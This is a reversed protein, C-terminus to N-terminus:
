RKPITKRFANVALLLLPLVLGYTLVYLPWIEKDWTNSQVINTRTILPLVILILGLPLTLPRYDKLNLTQALGIVSAYFYVVLKFYITIFWMIAMIGEIRQVFNEVNIKRALAYSPYSINASQDAGLVLITLVVIIILFIGGIFTGIFFAKQAQKPQNVSVPFIMLFVILPLSFNSTFLFVARTMPKIGTEFLPQINQFEIQPAVFIVLIIFLIIFFAFFIEASRALTELGLRIGMMLICVFLIYIAKLPTGPLIQTTVFNGLYFLLAAVSHLSFFVFTLSIVKGLWKGLLTENIEVLTMTPFMRGIAIYLAVLLLGIGTGIVPVIWADQKVEQALMGPLVLITTGITFLIVLITFQGASIKLNELM